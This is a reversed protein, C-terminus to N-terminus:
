GGVDKTEVFHDPDLPAAGLEAAGSRESVVLMAILRNEVRSRVDKISSGCGPSIERPLMIVDFDATAQGLTGSGDEGAPRSIVAAPAGLMRWAACGRAHDYAEQLACDLPIKECTERCSWSFVIKRGIRTRTEQLFLNGELDAIETERGLQLGVQFLPPRYAARRVVDSGLDQVAFVAVAILHVDPRQTHDQVGHEDSLRRKFGLVDLRRVPFDPSANIGPSAPPATNNGHKKTNTWNRLGVINVHHPDKM